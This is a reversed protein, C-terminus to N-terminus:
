TNSFFQMVVTRGSALREELSAASTLRTARSRLLFWTGVIAAIFSIRVFNDMLFDIM